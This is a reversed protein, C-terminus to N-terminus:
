ESSLQFEKNSMMMLKMEEKDAEELSNMFAVVELGFQKIQYEEVETAIRKIQVLGSKVLDDLSRKINKYILEDMPLNDQQAEKLIGLLKNKLYGAKFNVTIPDMSLLALTEIDFTSLNLTAILNMKNYKETKSYTGDNERLSKLDKNLQQREKPNLDSNEIEHDMKAKRVLELEKNKIRESMLRELELKAQTDNIKDKMAMHRSKTLPENAFWDFIYRTWPSILTLVLGVVVPWIYLSWFSTHSEFAAWRLAPAGTTMVLFFFGKWNIAVFALIVYGYLPAKIRESVADSIDKIM